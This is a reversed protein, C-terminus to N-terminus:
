DQEDKQVNAVKGHIEKEHRTLAYKTGYAKDCPECLFRRERVYKHMLVHNCFQNRGQFSKECEECNFLGNEGRIYKTVRPGRGDVHVPEHRELDPRSGFNKDCYKCKYWALKKAKHRRKHSHYYNKDSFVKGCDPCTCLGNEDEVVEDEPTKHRHMHIKLSNKKKFSRDCKECQWSEASPEPLQGDVAVHQEANPEQKVKVPDTQETTSVDKCKEAIKKKHLGHAEHIKLTDKTSFVKDCPKCYFRREKLVKHKIVHGSFHARSTFSKDCEQCHFLGNEDPHYKLNWGVRKRIQRDSHMREVHLRLQKKTSLVKRCIECKSSIKKEASKKRPKAEIQPLVDSEVEDDVPDLVDEIILEEKVITSRCQSQGVSDVALDPENQENTITTEVQQQEGSKHVLEKHRRLHHKLVFSKQCLSCAFIREGHRQKIHKTLLARTPFLKDCEKCYREEPKVAAKHPREHAMKVHKALLSNEKFLKHCINCEITAPKHSRQHDNFARKNPYSKFCIQCVLLPMQEDSNAPKPEEKPIIEEDGSNGLGDEVTPERKITIKTSIALNAENEIAEQKM